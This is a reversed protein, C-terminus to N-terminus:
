LGVSWRGFIEMVVMEVLKRKGNGVVISCRGYFGLRMVVVVVLTRCLSAFPFYYFFCDVPTNYRIKEM